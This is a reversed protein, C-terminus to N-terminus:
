VLYDLLQVQQERPLEIQAQAILGVVLVVLVLSPKM